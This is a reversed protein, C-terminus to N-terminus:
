DNRRALNVINDVRTRIDHVSQVLEDITTKNHLTAKESERQYIWDSSFRLMEITNMIKAITDAKTKTKSNSMVELM